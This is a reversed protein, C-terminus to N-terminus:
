QIVMKRTVKQGDYDFEVVYIGSQLDSIELQYRAHSKGETIIDGLSNLVRFNTSRPTNITVRDSTAPNPYITIENLEEESLSTIVSPKFEVQDLNFGNQDVVFKLVHAGASLGINTLSITTWQDWAGTSPVSLAGTVDVDDIELHFVGSTSPAAVTSIIDYNGTNIVNVTYETWEGVSTWGLYYGGGIVEDIDVPEDVRFFGGENAATVDHYSIMEGGYDFAEAQVVGPIDQSVYPVQCPSLGTTGGVCDGCYDIYAIGNETNNCDVVQGNSIVFDWVGRGYTGFRVTNIAPIYEVSRFDVFPTKGGTISHWSNDAFVYAYPGESTAAYLISEDASFAIDFYTAAPANGDLPLFSQGGDKSQYVGTNSWGTGCMIVNDADTESVAIDWPLLSTPINYSSKIWASGGNTSTFFTGDKTAVYLRDFDSKAASLAKIVSTGNRSNARFDYNYQTPLWQFNSGNGTWSVEMSILYSGSGGNINGGAVYCKKASPDPHNEVPNIWGPIDDGPVQWWRESTANKDYRCIMSGNQLFGFWSNGNNFFLERMGDGTTQNESTIMDTSANNNTVNSFTGKDQAGFYISGDPATAHDYLTVVNLGSLGLNKTTQMNDYSVYVGAHNLIIFFPTNDPKRFLEMEMNDVHMNNKRDPLPFNKDYYTWWYSYQESWNTEDSTKMFQFGGMYLDNNLPNAMWVNRFIGEATGNIIVQGRSVWSAGTNSSSKFVDKKNALLYFTPNGGNHRGTLKIDGDTVGGFSTTSLSANGSNFDHTITHFQKAKNDVVYIHDDDVPSWMDVSNFNYGGGNLSMVLSYSEGWDTSKYVEIASGWPSTKWTHVLYYMTKGDSLEIIKKPNGWGDHFEPGIGSSISWTAGMDDSFRPKKNDRGTGYLAILRDNGNKKIHTLVNTNFKIKDNLVRWNKGNLNGKWIHGATSLVYLSDTQPDYDVERLDGAENIPGREFWEGSIIGNAFTEVGKARLGKRRNRYKIFHESRISDVNTGELAYYLEDKYEHKYAKQKADREFAAYDFFGEPRKHEKNQTKHECSVFLFSLFLFLYFLNKM